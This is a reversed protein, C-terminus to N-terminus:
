RRRFDLAGFDFDVIPCDIRFGAVKGAYDFDFRFLAFPLFKDPFDVRFTDQHWHTMTGFLKEKSPTLEVYLKGDRVEVVAPGYIADEYNGAYEGLPLRPSTGEIRQAERAEREAKEQAKIRKGILAIREIQAKGDGGARAALLARKIAENVVGDNGNNLVIFGFKEEPMLSVKSLFGPMGGDHEILKMGREVALFWGLGYSRFDKTNAGSGGGTTVNPHWLERLSDADLMTKGQWKGDALLMRVWSSLEHVSSYIAGAPKCALFESAPIQEGDIHPLAKEAGEPLRAATARSATMDLPKFLETEVYDEWSKGSVKQIILGAVMFMLNQYGFKDRFSQVIPLREMRRLIEKDDYKSGYWLLDGEFTKLGCRHCLLDRVTMHATIWPDAMRFEPIHDIVRDDWGLKGAAVLRAVSAATFAKSCSAINFLTTPTVPVGKSREGCAVECLVEGDQIVAVALGVTQFKEQALTVWETVQEATLNTPTTQAAQQAVAAVPALTSVLGLFLFSRLLSPM